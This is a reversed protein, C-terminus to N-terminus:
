EDGDGFGEEEEDRLLLLLMPPLLTPETAEHNTM